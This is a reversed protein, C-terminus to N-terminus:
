FDRLFSESITDGEKLITVIKIKKTIENEQVYIMVKNLVFIDDGKTFYLFEKSILRKMSKTIHIRSILSLRRLSHFFSDVVILLSKLVANRNLM